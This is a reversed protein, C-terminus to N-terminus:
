VLSEYHDEGVFLKRELCFWYSHILLGLWSCIYASTYASRDETMGMSIINAIAIVM